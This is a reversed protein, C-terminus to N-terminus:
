LSRGRPIDESIGAAEAVAVQTLGRQKRYSLLTNGVQRFDIEM